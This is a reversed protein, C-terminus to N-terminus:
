EVTSMVVRPAIADDPTAKAESLIGYGNEGWNGWSNRIRVAFRNNGLSIGSVALVEHGWWNLGICVPIRLLLCTMLQAFSRPKLDWWETIRYKKAEDIAEQTYYRRDIATDPWLRTPTLGNEGIFEVAETGWGGVNRFNKIRAGASAPSLSVYDLGYSVMRLLEVAYTPAFIWCNHVGVGEATYSHDDEVEFNFVFGKFDEEEISRLKRWMYKDDEHTEFKGNLETDLQIKWSQHHHQGKKDIKEKTHTTFSPCYGLSTAINFMNLAMERSITVGSNGRQRDGDIWATLVGKLFEKPGSCLYQNMFKNLSLKSCLSEMLHAFKKSEVIVQCTNVKPKEKVRVDMGTSEKICGVLESVYTDQESMNFSFITQYSSTHGESLFFGIVRGFSHNLEIIDPLIQTCTTTVKRGVVGRKSQKRNQKILYRENIFDNTNIFNNSSPNFKPFAIMDGYVLDAAQVYGRNTLVPHGATLRLHRHGNINLKLLGDDVFNCHTSMVRKVNGEATLVEDLYKVDEIRKNSGDAMRILTGRPFCYNTRQQNKVPINAQNSLDFLGTKTKEIEEIREAWESRDIVPTTMESMFQSSGLPVKNYDREFRGFADMEHMRLVENNLDFDDGIYLQNSIDSIHM